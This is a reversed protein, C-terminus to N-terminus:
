ELRELLLLRDGDNVFDGHNKRVDLVRSDSWAQISWKEIYYREPKGTEGELDPVVYGIKGKQCIQGREFRKNGQRDPLVHLVGDAYTWSVWDLTKGNVKQGCVPHGFLRLDEALDGLRMLRRRTSSVDGSQDREGRNFISILANSLMGPRRDYLEFCRLKMLCATPGFDRLTLHFFADNQRFVIGDQLSGDVITAKGGPTKQGPGYEMPLGAGDHTRGYGFFWDEFFELRQVAAWVDRINSNAVHEAEYAFSEGNYQNARYTKVWGAGAPDIAMHPNFTRM